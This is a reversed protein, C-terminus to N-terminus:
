IRTKEQIKSSNDEELFLEEQSVSVTKAAPETYIEETKWQYLKEPEAM